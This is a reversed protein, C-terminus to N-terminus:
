EPIDEYQRVYDDTSSKYTIVKNKNPYVMGLDEVAVKYVYDLDYTTNVMAEAADNEHTLTTLDREMSIISKDMISVQTQLMLYEVCVYVTAIIAATLVLLSAFNIGSLTKPHRHEQRRPSPMEYQQEERRIDPTANLKRVTNGEVYSTGKYDYQYRRKNADM